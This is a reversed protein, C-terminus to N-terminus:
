PSYQPYVNYNTYLVKMYCCYVETQVARVLLEELCRLLRRTVLLVITSYMSQGEGVEGPLDVLEGSGHWALFYITYKGQYSGGRNKVRHAKDCEEASIPPFGM